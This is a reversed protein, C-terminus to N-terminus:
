GDICAITVETNFREGVQLSPPPFALEPCRSIDLALSEDLYVLSVPLELLKKCDSLFLARLSVISGINDPLSRFENSSLNLEELKTLSSFLAKSISLLKNSSLDLVRLGTCLLVSRPVSGLLNGGLELRTLGVPKLCLRPDEEIEKWLVPLSSSATEDKRKKRRKKQQRSRRSGPRPEEQEREIRLRRRREVATETALVYREHEEKEMKRAEDLLRQRDRIWLPLAQKPDLFRPLKKIKNFKASFQSLRPLTALSAPVEELENGDLNLDTVSELMLRKLFSDLVLPLRSPLPISPTRRHIEMRETDFRQEDPGLHVQLTRGMFLWLFDLYSSQEEVAKKQSQQLPQLRGSRFSSGAKLPNRSVSYKNRSEVVFTRGKALPKSGSKLVQNRLSSAARSWVAKGATRLLSAENPTSTSLEVQREGEDSSGESGEEEESSGNDDFLVADNFGYVAKARESLQRLSVAADDIGKKMRRRLLQKPIRSSDRSLLSFSYKEINAMAMARVNRNLREESQFPSPQRLSEGVFFLKQPRKINCLDLVKKADEVASPHPSQTLYWPLERLHVHSLCLSSPALCQPMADDVAVEIYKSANSNIDRGLSQPRIQGEADLLGSQRGADYFAHLFRLVSPDEQEARVVDFPPFAWNEAAEIGVRAKQYSSSGLSMPLFTLPPNHSM